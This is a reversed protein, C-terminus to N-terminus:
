AKSDVIRGNPNRQLNQNDLKGQWDKEKDVSKTLTRTEGGAAYLAGCEPCVAYYISVSSQVVERNERQAKANESAVHENEHSLVAGTSLSTPIHTPTQFSVSPDNSIDKYRRAACTRCAGKQVQNETESKAARQGRDMIGQREENKAKSENIAKEWRDMVPVTNGKNLGDVKDM